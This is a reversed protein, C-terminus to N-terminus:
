MKLSMIPITEISIALSFPIIAKITTSLLRGSISRRFDADALMYCFKGDMEHFNWEFKISILAFFYSFIIMSIILSYAM